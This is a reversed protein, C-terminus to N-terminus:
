YQISAPLPCHSLTALPASYGWLWPLTREMRLLPSGLQTKRADIPVVSVRLTLRAADIIYYTIETRMLVHGEVTACRTM